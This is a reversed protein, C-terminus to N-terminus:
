IDSDKAKQTKRHGTVHAGSFSFSKPKKKYNEIISCYKEFITDSIAEWTLGLAQKAGQGVAKRLQDDNLAREMASAIGEVTDTCLFANVNDTLGEATNSGAVLVSPVYLAAAERIVLSANDYVSPFVFLDARAYMQKLLERDYIPGTFTLCDNLGLRTAKEMLAEKAYGEGVILMRFPKGTKKYLAVAEVIKDLNKQYVIQGVFLMVPLDPSISFRQNVAKQATAYDVNGDYDTGNQMIEVPGKYGYEFLTEATKSNVTWVVDAKKFFSVVYDVVRSAIFESGTAQLFDDRFKSHFTAVMPIDLKKSLRYAASGASFPSHAHVITPNMRREISHMSSDLFPIGFRHPPHPKIPVSLFRIVPFPDTDTYDVVSPVAVYAKCHKQSLWYATNRVCTAVGDVVPIYSDSYLGVTIDKKDM